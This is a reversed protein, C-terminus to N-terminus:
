ESKCVAVTQRGTSLTNQNVGINSGALVVDADAGTAGLHVKISGDFSELVEFTFATEDSLTQVITTSTGDEGYVDNLLFAIDADPTNLDGYHLHVPHFVDGETGNLTVEVEVSTDTREKFSVNGAVPFDSSQTLDYVIERGTYENDVTEESQSDCSWILLVAFIMSLIYHQQM